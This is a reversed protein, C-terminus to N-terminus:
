CKWNNKRYDGFNFVCQLEFDSKWIVPRLLSSIHIVLRDLLNNLLVWYFSIIAITTTRPAAFLRFAIASSTTMKVSDAHCVACYITVIQRQLTSHFALSMESTFGVRISNSAASTPSSQAFICRRFSNHVLPENKAATEWKAGPRCATEKKCREARREVSYWGRYLAGSLLLVALVRGNTRWVLM